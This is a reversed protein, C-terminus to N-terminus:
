ITPNHSNNKNKWSTTNIVAEKTQNVVKTAATKVTIARNEMLNSKEKHKEMASKYNAASMRRPYKQKKTKRLPPKARKVKITVLKIAKRLVLSFMKATLIERKNLEIHLNLRSKLAVKKRCRIKIVISMNILVKRLSNRKKSSCIACDISIWWHNLKVKRTLIILSLEIEGKVREV